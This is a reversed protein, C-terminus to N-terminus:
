VLTISALSTRVMAGDELLAEMIEKMDLAERGLQRLATLEPSSTLASPLSVHQWIETIFELRKTLQEIAAKTGELAQVHKQLLARHEQDVEACANELADEIDFGTVRQSFQQFNAQNAHAGKATEDFRQLSVPHTLLM